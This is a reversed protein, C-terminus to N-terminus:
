HHRHTDFDEGVALGWDGRVLFEDAWPRAKEELGYFTTLPPRSPREEAPIRGEGQAAFVTRAGDGPPNRHIQGVAIRQFDELSEDGSVGCRVKRVQRGEVRSRDAIESVVHDAVDLIERVSWSVIPTEGLLDPLEYSRQGGHVAEAMRDDEDAVHEDSVVGLGLIALDHRREFGIGPAQALWGGVGRHGYGAAAVGVDLVHRVELPLSELMRDFYCLLVDQRAVGELDDEAL